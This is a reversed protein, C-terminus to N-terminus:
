PLPLHATEWFRIIMELTPFTHLKTNRPGVDSDTISIHKYKLRSGEKYMCPLGCAKQFSDSNLKKEMLM